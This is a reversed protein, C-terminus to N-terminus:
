RGPVCRDSTSHSTGTYIYDLMLRFIRLSIHGIEIDIEKVQNSAGEEDMAALARLTQVYWACMRYILRSFERAVL